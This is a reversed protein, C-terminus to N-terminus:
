AANRRVLRFLPIKAAATDLDDVLSVGIRDGLAKAARPHNVRYREFVDVADSGELRRATARTRTRGRTYSVDSNASVNKFWQSSEGFGSAIVPVGDDGTELVELVTQRIQGSTRGVHEFLLFRRGLVAGLGVRYLGIPARMVVRQLRNVDGHDRRGHTSVLSRLGRFGLTITPAHV